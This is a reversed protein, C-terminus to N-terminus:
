RDDDRRREIRGGRGLADIENFKVLDRKVAVALVRAEAVEVRVEAMGARIDEVTTTLDDVKTVLNPQDRGVHNVARNAGRAQVFAAAAAITPAVSALSALVVVEASM